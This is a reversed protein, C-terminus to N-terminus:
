LFRIKAMSKQSVVCRPFSIGRVEHLQARWNFFIQAIDQPIHEDWGLNHFWITQMCIKLSITVPSIFGLPDYVKSADSLMQRKTFNVPAITLKPIDAVREAMEPPRRAKKRVDKSSEPM